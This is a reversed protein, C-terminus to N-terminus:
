RPCVVSTGAAITRSSVRCAARRLKLETEREAPCHANSTGGSHRSVARGTRVMRAVPTRGSGGSGIARIRFAIARVSPSATAVSRNRVRASRKLPPVGAARGDMSRGQLASGGRGTSHVDFRLPVRAGGRRVGLRASGAALRVGGHHASGLMGVSCEAFLTRGPMWLLRVDHRGGHRM